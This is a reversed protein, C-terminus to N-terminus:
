HICFGRNNKLEYKEFFRRSMCIKDGNNHHFSDIIEDVTSGYVKYGCINEVQLNGKTVGIRVKFLDINENHQIRFDNLFKVVNSLNEFVLHYSDGEDGVMHGSCEKLLRKVIKRHIELSNKMKLPHENYLFTSNIVDTVVLFANKLPFHINKDTEKLCNKDITKVSYLSLDIKDNSSSYEDSEFGNYIYKLSEYIIIVQAVLIQKLCYLIFLIRELTQSLSIM